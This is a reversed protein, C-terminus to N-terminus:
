KDTYCKCCTAEHFLIPDELQSMTGCAVEGESLFTRQGKYNRKVRPPLLTERLNSKVVLHWPTKWRPWIVPPWQKVTQGSGSVTPPARCIRLLFGWGCCQHSLKSTADWRIWSIQPWCNEKVGGNGQPHSWPLTKSFSVVLQWFDATGKLKESPHYFM